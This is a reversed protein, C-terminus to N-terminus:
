VIASQTLCGTSAEVFAQTDQALFSVKITANIEVNDFTCPRQRLSPAAPLVM